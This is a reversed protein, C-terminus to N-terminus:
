GSDSIQHLRIEPEPDGKVEAHEAHQGDVQKAEL